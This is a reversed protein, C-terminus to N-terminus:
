LESETWDARQDKYTNAAGKSRDKGLTVEEPPLIRGTFTVLDPRMLMNFNKLEGSVAATTVVRNAFRQLTDVRRTPEMRFLTIIQYRM